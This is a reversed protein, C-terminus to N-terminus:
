STRSGAAARLDREATISDLTNKRFARTLQYIAESAAAGDRTEMADRLRHLHPARTEHPAPTEPVPLRDMFQMKMGRRIMQLVPNESAEVFRDGLERTLRMRENAEIDDSLLRDVLAYITTRQEDTAREACLRASMMFLGSLAELVQDVITPDPPDELGLLHEIVDLSAHEVPAVRSGGHRIDALGLQELQKLAERVAGRHVSFREALDRESPLREGSRYQGRLIEDRLEAAIAASRSIAQM